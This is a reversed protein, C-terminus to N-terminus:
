KKGGDFAQRSAWRARALTTRAYGWTRRLALADLEVVRRTGFETAMFELLAGRKGYPELADLLALVDAATPQQQQATRGPQAHFHNITVNGGVRGVQTGSGEQRMRWGLRALLGNVAGLLAILGKNDKSGGM